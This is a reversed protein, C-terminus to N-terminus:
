KLPRAGGGAGQDLLRLFKIALKRGRVDGTPARRGATGTCTRETAICIAHSRRRSGKVMADVPGVSDSGCFLRFADAAPNDPVLRGM